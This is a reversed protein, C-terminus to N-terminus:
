LGRREVRWGEEEFRGEKIATELEGSHWEGKPNPSRSLRLVRPDLMAAM